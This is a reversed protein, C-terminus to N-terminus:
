KRLVCPCFLLITSAATTSLSSSSLNYTSRSRCIYCRISCHLTQTRESKTAQHIKIQDIPEPQNGATISAAPCVICEVCIFLILRFEVRHYRIFHFSYFLLFVFLSFFSIRNSNIVDFHPTIAQKETTQRHAEM